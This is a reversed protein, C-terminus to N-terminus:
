LKCIRLLPGGLSVVLSDLYEYRLALVIPCQLEEILVQKGSYSSVYQLGFLEVIMQEPLSFLANCFPRYLGALKM